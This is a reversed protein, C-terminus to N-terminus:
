KAAEKIPMGFKPSVLEFSLDKLMVKNIPADDVDLDEM